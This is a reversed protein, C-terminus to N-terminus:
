WYGAYVCMELETIILYTVQSSFFLKWVQNYFFYRDDEDSWMKKWRAKKELIKLTKLERGKIGRWFSAIKTSAKVELEFNEKIDQEKKQRMQKTRIQALVQKCWQRIVVSKEKKLLKVKQMIERKNAVIIMAIMRRLGQQIIIAAKLEKQANFYSQLLYKQRCSIAVRWFCQIIIANINKMRNKEILEDILLRFENQRYFKFITRAAASEKHRLQDRANILVYRKRKSAAIRWFLQITRANKFM